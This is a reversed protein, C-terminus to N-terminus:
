WEIGQASGRENESSSIAAPPRHERSQKQSLLEGARRSTQVSRPSVAVRVLQARRQSIVFAEGEALSGLLNPDVRFRQEPTASGRGTPGVRHDIQSTVAHAQVSGALKILEEAEPCSHLILSRSASVIRQKGKGLGDYSQASLAVSCGFSRLREVLGAADADAQIAPFEDVILLVRENPSKAHAAFHKFSEFLYAALKGAEKPQALGELLVYAARKSEFSWSGDLKGRFSDFFARYRLLVGMAERRQEVASAKILCDLRELLEESSEPLSGELMLAQAIFSRTADEYYPESFQVVGLLRNLLQAFGEDLNGSTRWGDFPEAPFVGLQREDIGADLMTAIFEHQTSYDGKGDLFYVRWGYVKAALYALRMLTVTKGSGPQGIVAVHRGLNAEDYVLYRGGFPKQAIWSRPLDGSAAAGLVARGNIEDPASRIRKAARARDSKTRQGRQADAHPEWWQADRQAWALGVAALALGLPITAPLGLKWFEDSRKLMRKFTNPKGSTWIQNSRHMVKEVRKVPDMDMSAFVGFVLLASILLMWWRLRLVGFLVAALAGVVAAPLLLFAISGFILILVIKFGYDAFFDNQQYAPRNPCAQTQNM